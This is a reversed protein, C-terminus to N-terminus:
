MTTAWSLCAAKKVEFLKKGTKDFVAVHADAADSNQAVVHGKSLSIVPHKETDFDCLKKGSMDLIHIKKDDRNKLTVLMDDYISVGFYEPTLVISGKTDIVGEKNDTSVFRAFGCQEFTYCRKISKPLTAVTKGKTDVLRIQQNPNAVAAVGAKFATVHAFEEDVVPKKPSDISYLQYTEGQKVWFVGEYVNSLSADAPYEEKVVEKGDKDIISWSDGSSMQVPLYEKHFWAKEGKKDCSCLCLAVVMCCGYQWFKFSKM